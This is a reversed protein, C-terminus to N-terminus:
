NQSQNKQSYVPMVYRVNGDSEDNSEDDSADGGDGDDNEDMDYGDNKKDDKGDVLVASRSTSQITPTIIIHSSQSQSSSELGLLHSTGLPFMM